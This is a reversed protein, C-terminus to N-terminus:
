EKDCNSLIVYMYLCIFHHFGRGFKLLVNYKGILMCQRLILTKLLFLYSRRSDQHHLRLLICTSWYGGERVLILSYAYCTHSKYLM